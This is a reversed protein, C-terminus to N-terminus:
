ECIGSSIDERLRGGSPEIWSQIKGILLQQGLHEGEGEDRQGDEEKISSSSRSGGM